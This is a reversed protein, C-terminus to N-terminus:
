VESNLLVNSSFCTNSYYNVFFTSDHKNTLPQGSKHLADLHAETGQHSRAGDHDSLHGYVRCRAVATHGDRSVDGHGGLMQLASGAPRTPPLLVAASFILKLPLLAVLQWSKEKENGNQARIPGCLDRRRDSLCRRVPSQQRFHDPHFEPLSLHVFIRLTVYCFYSVSPCVIFVACGVDAARLLNEM